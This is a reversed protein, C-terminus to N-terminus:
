DLIELTSILQGLNVDNVKARTIEIHETGNTMGPLFLFGLNIVVWSKVTKDLM